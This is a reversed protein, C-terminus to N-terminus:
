PKLKRHMQWVSQAVTILVTIFEVGDMGACNLVDVVILAGRTGFTFLIWNNGYATCLSTALIVYGFPM